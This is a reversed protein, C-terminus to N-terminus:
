PIQHEWAELPNRLTTELSTASPETGNLLAEMTAAPSINTLALQRRIFAEDIEVAKALEGIGRFKGAEIAEM